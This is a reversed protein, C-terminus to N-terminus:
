SPGSLYIYRSFIVSLTQIRGLILLFFSKEGSQQFCLNLLVRVLNCSSCRSVGDKFVSSMNNEKWIWSHFINLFVARFEHCFYAICIVYLSGLNNISRCPICEEAINIIKQAYCKVNFETWCIVDTQCVFSLNRQYKSILVLRCYNM